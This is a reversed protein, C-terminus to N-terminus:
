NALHEYFRRKKISEILEAKTPSTGEDIFYISWYHPLERKPYIDCIPITYDLGRYNFSAEWNHEDINKIELAELAQDFNGIFDDESMNLLAYLNDESEKFPNISHEQVILETLLTRIAEEVNQMMMLVDVRWLLLYEKTIGVNTRSGEFGWYPYKTEALDLYYLVKEYDKDIEYLGALSTASKHKYNTHPDMLSGTTDSDKLESELIRKYWTKAKEYEKLQWYITPINFFANGYIDSEMGIKQDVIETWIKLTSDIQGEEYYSLASNFKELDEPKADKQAFCISPLFLLTFILHKAM